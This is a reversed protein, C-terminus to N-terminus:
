SLETLKRAQSVLWLEHQRRAAWLANDEGFAKGRPDVTEPRWNSDMSLGGRQQQQQQKRQGQNQWRQLRLPSFSFAHDQLLLLSALLRLTGGM